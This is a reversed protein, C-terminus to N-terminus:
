SRKANERAAMFVKVGEEMENWVRQLHPDRHAVEAYANVADAGDLLDTRGSWAMLGGLMMRQPGLWLDATTLRDGVAYHGPRLMDNLKGLAATFLTVQAAIAAEDREKSDFLRFLPGMAQQVYTEAVQTVLRVRAREAASQPRLSTQPFEDELYEVIVGSEPLASGDDLILVPIRVQPNFRRYDPSRRWDAPPSVIEVDLGKAYIAARARAAYPSAALSYLKM